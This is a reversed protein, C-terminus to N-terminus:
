LSECNAGSSKEERWMGRGGGGFATCKEPESGKNINDAGGVDTERDSGDM